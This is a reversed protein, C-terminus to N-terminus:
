PAFCPHHQIKVSKGVREYFNRVRGFIDTDISPARLAEGQRQRLPVLRGQKCLRQLAYSAQREDLGSLAEMVVKRRLIKLSGALDLIRQDIEEPTLIAQHQYADERDFAAYVRQSLTYARGRGQGQGAVLGSELLQEVQRRVLTPDRQLQESLQEVTLKRQEHLLNLV